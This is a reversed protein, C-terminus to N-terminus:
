VDEMLRDRRYDAERDADDIRDEEIQHNVADQVRAYWGNELRDRIMSSFPEPAEVIPWAEVAPDTREVFSRARYCEIYIGIIGWDGDKTYEIEAHGDVDGATTNGDIVVLPMENDFNFIFTNM